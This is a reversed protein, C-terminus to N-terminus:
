GRPGIHRLHHDRWARRAPRLFTQARALTRLKQRPVPAPCLRVPADLQRAVRRVLEHVRHQGPEFFRLRAPAADRRRHQPDCARLGFGRPYELQGGFIEGRAPGAKALQGLAHDGLGPVHHVMLSMTGVQTLGFTLGHALQVIALIAIPPDQATIVWRTVAALAGIVVLM